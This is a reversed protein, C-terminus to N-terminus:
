RKRKRNSVELEFLSGEMEMEIGHCCVILLFRRRCSCFLGAMCIRLVVMNRRRRRRMEAMEADPNPEIPVMDAANPSLPKKQAISALPLCSTIHQLLFLLEEEVEVEDESDDKSM